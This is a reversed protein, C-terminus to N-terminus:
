RVVYTASSEQGTKGMEGRDDGAISVTVSGDSSQVRVPPAVKLTVSQMFAVAGDYVINGGADRVVVTAGGGSATLVFPVKPANASTGNALGGSANLRPREDVKTGGSTVLHVISGVLVVAMVAAVLVSWNPGGRTGRISGGFGTALESEFVRRPDVPADAYREDYSALLPAVDVGLVRSLTRLHGRAYFDGGCPAFDDVEIAEIVHPRIRTRDALQDVTLGLRTRAAALEPGIVPDAVLPVDSLDGIVVTGDHEPRLDERTWAQTDETTLPRVNDVPEPEPDPVHRSESRAARLLARLPGPTPSALAASVAPAAAPGAEETREDVVEDEVPQDVPEDASESVPEDVPEDLPHAAVSEDTLPESEADDLEDAPVLDIEVVDATYDSHALLTVALDDGAGTVHSALGLRVGWETGDAGFVDLRGDRLPGRPALHEVREVESWPLGHWSRGRRVRLGHEDAVLLPARADLLAALYVGGLLAMVGFLSWDLVSGTDTARVLYAIALVAGAVGIAAALPVRRRVETTAPVDTVDPEDTENQAVATNSVDTM